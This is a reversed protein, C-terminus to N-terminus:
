KQPRQRRPLNKFCERLLEDVSFEDEFVYFMAAMLLITVHRRDTAKSNEPPCIRSVSNLGSLYPALLNYMDEGTLHHRKKLEGLKKDLMEVFRDIVTIEKQTLAPQHKKINIRSTDRDEKKIRPKQAQKEANTM